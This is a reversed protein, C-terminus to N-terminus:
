RLSILHSAQMRSDRHIVSVMASGVSREGFAGARVARVDSGNASVGGLPHSTASVQSVGMAKIADCTPKM